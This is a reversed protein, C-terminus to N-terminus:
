LQGQKDSKEGDKSGKEAAVQQQQTSSTVPITASDRGGSTGPIVSSLLGEQSHPSPIEQDEGDSGDFSGDSDSDSGCHAYPELPHPSPLSPLSPSLSSLLPHPPSSPFSLSTHPSLPLSPLHPSLSSLLPHPPSPVAPNFSSYPFPTSSEKAVRPRGRKSVQTRWSTWWKNTGSMMERRQRRWLPAATRMRSSM